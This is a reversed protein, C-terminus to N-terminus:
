ELPLVSSMVLETVQAEDEEAIAVILEAPRAEDFAVPCVVIEAVLPVTDPRVTSVTVGAWNTAIETVGSLAEMGSPVVVCNVAVPVNVSPVICFRVALAVQVDDCVATAVTVAPRAKGTEVPAVVIVALTPEIEPDALRVTM